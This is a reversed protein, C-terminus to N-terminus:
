CSGDLQEFRTVRWAGVINTVKIRQPVRTAEGLLTPAGDPVVLQTADVCVDITLVQDRTQLELFEIVVVGDYTGRDSFAVLARRYLDVVPATANFSLLRGLRATRAAERRGREFDVYTQLAQQYVGKLEPLDVLDLGVEPYDVDATSSEPGSEPGSEASGTPDAAQPDEDDACGALLLLPVVLAAIAAPVHRYTTM